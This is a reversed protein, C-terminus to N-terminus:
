LGNRIAVIDNASDWDIITFCNGSVKFDLSYVDIGIRSLYDSFSNIKDKRKEFEASCYEVIPELSSREEDWFVNKKAFHWGWTPRELTVHNFATDGNITEIGRITNNEIIELIQSVNGTNGNSILFRGCLLTSTNECCWIEDYPYPCDINAFFSNLDDKNRIIYNKLNRRLDLPVLIVVFFSQNSNDLLQLLDHYLSFITHKKYRRIQHNIDNEDILGHQILIDYKAWKQPVMKEFFKM